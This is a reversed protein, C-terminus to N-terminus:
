NGQFETLLANRQNNFVDHLDDVKKSHFTDTYRAISNPHTRKYEKELLKFLEHEEKFNLASQMSKHYANKATEGIGAYKAMSQQFIAPHYTQPTIGDKHMGASALTAFASLLADYDTRKNEDLGAIKYDNVPLSINASINGAHFAFGSAAAAALPGGERVADVIQQAAEPDKKFINQITKRASNIDSYNGLASNFTKLSNYQSQYFKEDNSARDLTAQLLAKQKEQELPNMASTDINPLPHHQPLYGEKSSRTDGVSPASETKGTVAPKPLENTTLTSSGTTSPLITSSTTAGEGMIPSPMNKQISELKSRYEANLTRYEAASIQGTSAMEKANRQLAIITQLAQEQEKQSLTRQEMSLKQQDLMSKVAPLEPAKSAWHAILDPPPMKGANEPKSRWERIAKSVDVNQGMLAQSQALKARMEALPIAMARQQEVNEGLAESASGLSALFGGLQPKAFGAAVKFWNPQAYRAELADIQKKIADQYEQQQEETTGYVPFKEPTISSGLGSAIKTVDTTAMM